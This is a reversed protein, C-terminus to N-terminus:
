NLHDVLVLTPTETVDVSVAGSTITLASSSGNLQQDELLVQTARTADAALKLTYGNVVTANSTPAWLVYAGDAGLTDQFTAIDVNANGSAVPAVYRMTALTARFTNVFYYSAKYGGDVDILGCSNFM